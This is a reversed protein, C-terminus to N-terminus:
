QTLRSVANVALKKAYDSTYLTTKVELFIFTKQQICMKKNKYLQKGMGM